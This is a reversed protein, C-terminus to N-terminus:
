DKNLFVFIVFVLIWYIAAFASTLSKLGQSGILPLLLLGLAAILIALIQFVAPRIAVKGSTPPYGLLLRWYWKACTYGAPIEKSAKKKEEPTWAEYILYAFVQGVWGFGWLLAFIVLFSEINQWDFRELRM